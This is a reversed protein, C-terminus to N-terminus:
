TTVLYGYRFTRSSCRRESSHLFLNRSAARRLGLLDLFVEKRFFNLVVCTLPVALNAFSHKRFHQLERTETFIYLLFSPFRGPVSTWARPNGSGSLSTKIRYNHIIFQSNHITRANKSMNYAFAFHLAFRRTMYINSTYSTTFSFLQFYIM